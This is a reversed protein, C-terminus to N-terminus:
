FTLIYLNNKLKYFEQATLVISNVPLFPLRTEDNWNMPYTIKPPENNQNNEDNINLPSVLQQSKNDGSEKNHCNLQFLEIKNTKRNVKALLEIFNINDDRRGTYNAAWINNTNSIPVTNKSTALEGVTINGNYQYYKSIIFYDEKNDSIRPWMKNRCSTLPSIEGFNSM